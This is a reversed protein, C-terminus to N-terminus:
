ETIRSMQETSKEVSSSAQATFIAGCLGCRLRELEYVKAGLPAQGRLRVVRSPKNTYVTGKHCTPCPDGPKLSEHKVSVTDAGSYADAGNAFHSAPIAATREASVALVM